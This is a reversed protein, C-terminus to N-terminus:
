GRGRACHAAIGSYRDPSSNFWFLCPPFSSSVYQQEADAQALRTQDDPGNISSVWALAYGGDATEIVEGWGLGFTDLWAPAGEGDLALAM